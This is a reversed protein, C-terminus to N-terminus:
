HCTTGGLIVNDEETEPQEPQVEGEERIEPEEVEEDLPQYGGGLRNARQLLEADIEAIKERSRENPRTSAFITRQTHPDYRIRM